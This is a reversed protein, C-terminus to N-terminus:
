SRFYQSFSKVYKKVSCTDFTYLISLFYTISVAEDCRSRRRRPTVSSVTESKTFYAGPLPCDPSSIIAQQRKGSCIKKRSILCVFLGRAGGATELNKTVAPLKRDTLRKHKFIREIFPRIKRKSEWFLEM